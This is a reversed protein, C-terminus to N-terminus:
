NGGEGPNSFKKTYIDFSNNPQSIEELFSSKCRYFGKLGSQNLTDTVLECSIYSNDQYGVGMVEQQTNYERVRNIATPSLIFSYKINEDNLFLETGKSEIKTTTDKGLNSSWNVGIDRENENPFVNNLDINRYVFGYGKSDNDKLDFNSCESKIVPVGAILQYCSNKCASLDLKGNKTKTACDYLNTTNYVDYSCTYDLSVNDDVTIKVNDIHQKVTYNGTKGGTDLGSSVPYEENGLPTSLGNGDGEGLLGTYANASFKDSRWFDTETLIVFTAYDNTPLDINVTKCNTKTRAGTCTVLQHKKISDPKKLEVEKDKIYKYCDPNSDDNNKCFYTNNLDKSPLNMTEKEITVNKGYLKDEYELSMEACEHNAEDCVSEKLIINKASGMGSKNINANYPDNHNSIVQYNNKGVYYDVIKPATDGTAVYLNCNQLDYILQAVNDVKEKYNDFGQQELSKAANIDSNGGQKCSGSKAKTKQCCCTKAVNGKDDAPCSCTMTKCCPPYSCDDSGCNFSGSQIGQTGSGTNFNFNVGVESGSSVTWWKYSEGTMSGWGTPCPGDDSYSQNPWGYLTQKTLKNKKIDCSPSGCKNGNGTQACNKASTTVKQPSGGNTNIQWDYPAEMRKWEKYADMMAKVAEDYQELWSKKNGYKNPQDYYIESTCQKKQLVISTLAADDKVISDVDDECALVSPGIDYRFQMGAYVKKKNALFFQVEKRCYLDCVNENLGLEEPDRRFQLKDSENCPNLICNMYPDAKDFKDYGDYNNGCSASGADGSLTKSVPRFDSCKKTEDCPCSENVSKSFVKDSGGNTSAQEKKEKNFVATFMIQHTGPSACHRYERILGVSNFGKLTVEFTYKISSQSDTTTKNCVKEGAVELYCKEKTCSGNTLNAKPVEVKKGDKLMYVKVYMRCKSDKNLLEEQSCTTKYQTTSTTSSSDQEIFSKPWAASMSASGGGNSKADIKFDDSNNGDLLGDLFKGGGGNFMALAKKFLAISFIYSHKHDDKNMVDGCLVGMNNNAKTTACPSGSYGGAAAKATNLYVPTNTYYDFADNELGIENIGGISSGKVSGYYAAWMRLATTISGFYYNGSDVFTTKGNSDTQPVMTFFLIQALGCYYHNQLKDDCDNLDIQKNLCYQEGQPGTRGPQLCYANDTTGSSSKLIYNWVKSPQVKEVYNGGTTVTKNIGVKYKTNVEDIQCYGNCSRKISKCISNCRSLANRDPGFTKNNTPCAYENKNGTTRCNAGVAQHARCADPSMNNVGDLSCRNKIEVMAYTCAGSLSSGTMERCAKLANVKGKYIGSKSYDTQVSSTKPKYSKVWHYGVIKPSGASITVKDDVSEANVYNFCLLFSLFLLCLKKKM